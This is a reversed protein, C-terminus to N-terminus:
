LGYKKKLAIAEKQYHKLEEFYEKEENWDETLKPSKHYKSSITEIRKDTQQRLLALEEEFTM